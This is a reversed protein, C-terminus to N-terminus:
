FLFKVTLYRLRPLRTVPLLRGQHPHHDVEPLDALCAWRPPPLVPVHGIPYVWVWWVCECVSAWWPSSLVPVHGIPCVWWVSVWVGAWWPPSLVSVHGIPYVWVWWVSVSVNMVCEDSVGAGWPPPLVPVSVSMVCVWVSMVCEDFVWWVWWVNMLCKDCVWWVCEDSVWVCVPVHGASCECEDCVGVILYSRHYLESVRVCESESRM